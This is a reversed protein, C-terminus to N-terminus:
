ITFVYFAGNQGKLKVANSTVKVVLYNKDKLTYINDALMYYTQHSKTDQVVAEFQGSQTKTIATLSLALTAKKKDDLHHNLDQYRQKLQLYEIQKQLLASKIQLESMEQQTKMYLQYAQETDNIMQDSQQMDSRQVLTKTNAQRYSSPQKVTEGTKVNNNMSDKSLVPPANSYTNSGDAAYCVLSVGVIITSIWKVVSGVRLNM